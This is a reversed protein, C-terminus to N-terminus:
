FMMTSNFVTNSEDEDTENIRERTHASIDTDLSQTMRASPSLLAKVESLGPPSRAMRLYVWTQFLGCTTKSTEPLHLVGDIGEKFNPGFARSFYESQRRLLNKHFTFPTGNTGLTVRVMEHGLDRIKDTVTFVVQPTAICSAHRPISQSHAASCSRNLPLTTLKPSRSVSFGLCRFDLDFLQPAFPLRLLLLTGRGHCRSHATRDQLRETIGM